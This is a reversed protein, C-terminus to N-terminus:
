RSRRVKINLSDIEDGVHERLTSLLQPELFKLQTAWAPDDVEVTLVRKELRKPSVHEAVTEGVIEPWHSFLGFAAKKDSVRMGRLVKDLMESLPRPTRGPPVHEDSMRNAGGQTM